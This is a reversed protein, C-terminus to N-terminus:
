SPGVTEDGSRPDLEDAHRLLQFGAGVAFTVAFWLLSFESVAPDVTGSDVFQLWLPIAVGLLGAGALTAGISVIDTYYKFALGAGVLGVFVAILLTQQVAAAEFVPADVIAELTALPDALPNDPLAAFVADIIEEGILVVVTMVATVVFGGFMAALRGVVPIFLYGFVIGVLLCVIGLFLRGGIAVEGFLSPILLFGLVFGGLAGFASGAWRLLPQALEFGFLALAIGILTLVALSGLVVVDTM